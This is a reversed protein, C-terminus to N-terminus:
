GFGQEEEYVFTHCNTLQLGLQHGLDTEAVQVLDLEGVFAFPHKILSHSHFFCSQGIETLDFYQCM